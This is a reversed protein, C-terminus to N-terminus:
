KKKLFKDLSKQLQGDFKDYGGCAQGGFKYVTNGRHVKDNLDTETVTMCNGGIVVTKENPGFEALVIIDTGPPAFDTSFARREANRSKEKTKDILPKPIRHEQAEHRLLEDLKQANLGQIFKATNSSLSSVPKTVPAEEVAQVEANLPKQTKQSVEEIASVGEQITTEEVAPKPPETFEPKINPSEVFLYSKVPKPTKLPVKQPLGVGVILVVIGAHIVVSLALFQYRKLSM